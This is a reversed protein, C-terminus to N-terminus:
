SKETLTILPEDLTKGGIRPHEGRKM